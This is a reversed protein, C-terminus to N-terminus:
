PKKIMWSMLYRTQHTWHGWTLSSNNMSSPLLEPARAPPPSCVCEEVSGDQVPFGTNRRRLKDRRLLFLFILPNVLIPRFHRMSIFIEVLPNQFTFYYITLAGKLYKIRSYTLQPKENVHLLDCYNLFCITEELFLTTCSIDLNPELELPQLYLKWPLFVSLVLETFITKNHILLLTPSMDHTKPIVM